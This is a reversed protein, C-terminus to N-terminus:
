ELFLFWDRPSIHTLLIPKLFFRLLAFHIFLPLPNNKQFFPLLFVFLFLFPLLSFPIPYKRKKGAIPHHTDHVENNLDLATMMLQQIWFKKKEREEDDEEGEGDEGKGKGKVEGGVLGPIKEGLYILINPTQSIVLTKRNGEEGERGQGGTSAFCVRLGPPSFVPPNGAESELAHPNMCIRQVTAYGNEHASSSPNAIDTYPIKQSELALRIFEGRGPIGPHYLLEYKPTSTTTTTTTTTTTPPEQQQAM